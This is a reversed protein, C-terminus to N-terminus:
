GSGKVSKEVERQLRGEIIVLVENILVLRRHDVCGALRRVVQCHLGGAPKMHVWFVKRQLGRKGARLGRVLRRGQCGRLILEGPPDGM